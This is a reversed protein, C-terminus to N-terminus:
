RKMKHWPQIGAPVSTVFTDTPVGIKRACTYFRFDSFLQFANENDYTGAPLHDPSLLKDM